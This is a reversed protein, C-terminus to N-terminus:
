QTDWYDEKQPGNMASGSSPNDKNNEKAALIGTYLEEITYNPIDTNKAIEVMMQGFNGTKMSTVLKDWQLTSIRQEHLVNARIRPLPEQAELKGTYPPLPESGFQKKTTYMNM